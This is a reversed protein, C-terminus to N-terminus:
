RTTPDDMVRSYLEACAEDETAFVEEYAREGRQSYYVAWGNERQELTHSENPLGGELWYTNERVGEAELLRALDNKKM